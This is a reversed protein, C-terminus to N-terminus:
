CLAQHGACTAAAQAACTMHQAGCAVAALVRVLLATPQLHAQRQLGTLQQMLPQDQLQQASTPQLLSQGQCCTTRAQPPAAVSQQHQLRSSSRSSGTMSRNSTTSGTRPSCSSSSNSSSRTRSRRAHHRLHATISVAAKRAHLQTRLGPCASVGGAVARVLLATAAQQQMEVPLQRAQLPAQLLSPHQASASLQRRRPWLVNCSRSLSHRPLHATLRWLLFSRNWARSHQLPQAAQHRRWHQPTQCPLLM